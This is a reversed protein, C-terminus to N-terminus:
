HKDEIQWDFTQSTNPKKKQKITITLEQPKINEAIKLQGEIVQVHRLNLLHENVVIKENKGDHKANISISITGILVKGIEKGQTLVFRYRYSNTTNGYAQLQFKHVQLKSSSNGQTVGQYFSLEKELTMAESRLKVLQLRLRQNTAQQIALYQQQKRFISRLTANSACLQRNQSTQVYLQQELDRQLQESTSILQLQELSINQNLCWQIAITVVIIFLVFGIWRLPKSQKIVYKSLLSM